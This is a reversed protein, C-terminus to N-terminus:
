RDDTNGLDADPSLSRLCTLPLTGFAQQYSREDINTDMSRELRRERRCRVQKLNGARPFDWTARPRVRCVQYPNVHMSTYPRHPIWPTCSSSRLSSQVATRFIWAIQQIQPIEGFENRKNRKKRNETVSRKPVRQSPLIIRVPRIPDRLREQDGGNEAHSCGPQTDTTLPATIVATCM